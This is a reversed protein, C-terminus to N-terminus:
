PHLDKGPPIVLDGGVQECDLTSERIHEKFADNEWVLVRLPNRPCNSPLTIAVETNNKVKMIVETGSAYESKGPTITLAQLNPDAAPIEGSNKQTFFQAVTFFIMGKPAKQSIM